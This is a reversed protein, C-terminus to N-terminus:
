ANARPRSSARVLFFLALPVLFFAPKEGLPPGSNAKLLCVKGDSCAHGGKLVYVKGERAAKLFSASSMQLFKRVPETRRPPPPSASSTATSAGGQYTQVANPAREPLTGFATPLKPARDSLKRSQKSDNEAFIDLRTGLMLFHMHCVHELGTSGHEM